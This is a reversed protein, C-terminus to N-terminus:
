WRLDSDYIYKNKFPLPAPFVSRLSSLPADFKRFKDCLSLKKKDRFM